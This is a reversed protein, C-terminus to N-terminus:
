GRLAANTLAGGVSVLGRAGLLAASPNRPLQNNRPSALVILFCIITTPLQSPSHPQSQDGLQGFMATTTREILKMSGRPQDGIMGYIASVGCTDNLPQSISKFKTLREETSARQGSGHVLWGWVFKLRFLFSRADGM